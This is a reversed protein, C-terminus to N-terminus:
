PVLRVWVTFMRRSSRALPGTRLSTSSPRWTSPTASATASAAVTADADYRARNFRRDVLRQLRVRLPTFLAAAALTAAAVGVPNSFPLVRTTLIVLGALVGVLLGTLLAYSRARSSRDIDYLRYRLIGIGISIPLATLGLFGAKGLISVVVENTSGITIAALFGFVAM